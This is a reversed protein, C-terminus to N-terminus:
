NELFSIKNNRKKIEEQKAEEGKVPAGTQTEGRKGEKGKRERKTGDGKEGVCVPQLNQYNPKQMHTAVEISARVRNLVNENKKERELFSDLVCVCGFM